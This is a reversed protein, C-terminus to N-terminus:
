AIAEWAKGCVADFNCYACTEEVDGAYHKEHAAEPVGLASLLPLARKARLVHVEGKEHARLVAGETTEVRRWTLDLSPGDIPRRSLATDASLPKGGSLSFYAGPPFAGDNKVAHAYAALQVARGKELRKEYSFAGWKLDLVAPQGDHTELKVDLRGEIQGHATAVSVPEEVSVIRLRRDILYRRLAHVGRVLQAELQRRENAAGPLHLTAGETATLAEVQRRSEADFADRDLEFARAHFLNEVLRHGLNGNLLTGNAVKAIAGPRLRARKDLVWALPCSVLRELSTVANSADSSRLLEPAVSWIPRLSPLPLPPRQVSDTLGSTLLEQPRRTVRTLDGTRAAIEDLLPLQATTEGSVTNPVAFIVRSTAALVTNRWAQAEQNLFVVPDPLSIGARSLAEREAANWPLRPPQRESGGVACWVVVTEAPCLLAAPHGVHELRGAEEATIDAFASSRALDDLVNRAQEHTITTDSLSRLVENFARAEGFAIAYAADGAGLQKQLWAEVRMGVALVASRAAGAPDLPVAEIWDAVRALREAVYLKTDGEADPVGEEVLQRKRREELREAVKLRQRQWEQGGIGPQRAVARALMSGVMGRFPGVPLTLLELVRYPDRPAFAVELALPLIQMAPRWASPRAHGQRALGRRALAAELAGVDNCRVVVSSQGLLSATAEALETCTDARLILVSGDGSLPEATAGQLARQLRQLDGKGERMEPRYAGIRTGRAELLSFVSRWRASWTDRPETLTLEEYIPHPSCTRLEDEVLRLRDVGGLPLGAADILALAELRLGGNAIAQGNWGAEVLGDRWDLLTKATGLPDVEFSRAFFPAAGLTAAVRERWAPVRRSLPAEISPL